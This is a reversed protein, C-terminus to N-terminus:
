RARIVELQAFLLAQAEDRDIRNRNIPRANGLEGV